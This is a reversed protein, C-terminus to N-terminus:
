SQPVSGDGSDNRMWEDLISTMEDTSLDYLADIAEQDAGCAELMALGLSVQAIPSGDLAADRLLRGKVKGAGASAPPLTFTKTVKKEDQNASAPVTVEAKFTFAGTKAKTRRDQPSRRAPPM